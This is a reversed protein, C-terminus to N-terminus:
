CWRLFIPMGDPLENIFAKIAKNKQHASKPLKIKKMELVTTFQLIQGYGDERIKESHTEVFIKLPIEETKVRITKETAGSFGKIQKLVEYDTAFKLRECFVKEEVHINCSLSSPFLLELDIAM